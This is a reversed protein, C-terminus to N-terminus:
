EEKEKTGAWVILGFVMGFILPMAVVFGIPMKEGREILALPIIHKDCRKVLM